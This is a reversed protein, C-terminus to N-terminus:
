LIVLDLMMKVRTTVVKSVDKGRDVLDELLHRDVVLYNQGNLEYEQGVKAGRQAKVTVGNEDLYIM